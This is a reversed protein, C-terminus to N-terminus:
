ASEEVNYLDDFYGEAARLMQIVANLLLIDTQPDIDLEKSYNKIPVVASLSVGLRASVEEMMRNIYHSQYVNKVDEAVLPCAEDVKTMLVLQPVSLQNTKRRFAAFKDIMKDSLLKVKCTDIVYAVCHIKEKLGPSNIFCPTGSQIPMSSNFQYRDAIHGKLINYFDDVDLGANLGEELGMTDCLTFPIHSVGSSPKICYTRFQTTLSSGATGTNAQTSVYGKFVSNISNFFSSKGAGVPGVLLIRAQKVSKLSPKWESVSCLIEERREFNWLFRRWPKDMLGGFDEVRYVELETLELNNGHMQQPDFQYIGPNSNVTATNNHLFALSGFNPGTNGDNFACQPNGSVVRLPDNNNVNCNFSFLFAKDDVIDKGTQAYDSSTFAGFVYGSNNYAVVVTPGQRDCKQHFSDASYGHVSAKFLLSLKSQCFMSRLKKEQQKSLGSVVAS